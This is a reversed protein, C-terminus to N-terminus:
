YKGRDRRRDDNEQEASRKPIPTAYRRHQHIDSSGMATSSPRKEPGPGSNLLFNDRYLRRKSHSGWTLLCLKHADQSWGDDAADSNKAELYRRLDFPQEQDGYPYLMPFSGKEALASALNMRKLKSVQRPQQGDEMDQNKVEQTVMAVPAPTRFLGSPDVIFEEMGTPMGPRDEPLPGAGHPRCM